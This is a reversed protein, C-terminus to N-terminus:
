RMQANVADIAAQNLTIGVEAQTAKTYMEFLDRGVSQGLSASIKERAAKVPDSNPDAPTVANLTVLYVHGDADIVRSDGATMAFVQQGIAPSADAVFGDRAFDEFRTTVLGLTELTAGNEIQALSEQALTMLGAHTSDKKVDAAVKDKVEELPRVAAPEIGDLRLAFVGGDDLGELAPFSEATIEAAVKRFNEYGALEDESEASFDIQGIKIGADKAVDELTAGSALMDEIEGQRDAVMRRARGLAVESKLDDRAEEFTTEQAELIGNMAFLAPGLDSQLPGVVGPETLAWVADGAAGLSERSVEGLDVDDVALGRDQVLGEFTAEGSDLKAKAATAEEETPYVLRAVLRQEPILFEAKRDEYAQKLAEEDVEVQDMIDDPSLWIYTLKRIEPHMYADNHADYWATLVAQSPEAIAETLDSALLEAYTFSRTEAAWATLKNVLGEPATMGGLVAGQLLTRAAEDRLTQEFEAESLGQQSLFQSYADRSFKGDVGQLVQASMIKESVQADGVSIGLNAAENELTVASVLQSLVNRDIGLAQAQEFGVPQGIQASFADIERGLTRAYSRVEIPRDGVRGLETQSASFNTVGYGGLGLMVLSLVGWIVSNGRKKRLPTSM